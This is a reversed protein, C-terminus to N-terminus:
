HHWIKITRDKSGSALHTGSPSWDLTYVEDEHGALTNVAKKTDKVAWIKLTSDKSASVVHNSDASWSVQYISGM